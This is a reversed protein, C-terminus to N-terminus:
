NVTIWASGMDKASGDFTAEHKFQAEAPATTEFSYSSGPVGQVFWQVAHEGPTVKKSGRNGTFAVNAGDVRVKWIAGGSRKMSLSKQSTKSTPTKKSM